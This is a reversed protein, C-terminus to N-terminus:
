WNDAEASLQHSDWGTTFKGSAGTRRVTSELRLRRVTEEVFDKAGFPHGRRIARRIQALRPEPDNVLELWNSPRVVPSPSIIHRGESTTTRQLSSWRWQEARSVLGARLANAEVYRLVSLLHEDTQILSNRYRGQYVHGLGVGDHAQQYRRVHTSTIWRMYASLASGSKVFLVLHWHNPMLCYALIQLDYRELGDALIRLFAEYDATKFFIGGRRNGRNLVHHISNDPVIRRGRSM